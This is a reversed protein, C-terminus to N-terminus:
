PGAAAGLSKIYAILQALQEENVRGQFPPMLPQFGTAIKAQPDLISERLYTEDAIVTGGGQLRVPKGFLGALVPGIGQRQQEHCTHCGFQRFLRQGQSALSGEAGQAPGAPSSAGFAGPMAGSLWAEYQKLELVVIHGIM